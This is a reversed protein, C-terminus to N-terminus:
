LIICVMKGSSEESLRNTEKSPADRQKRVMASGELSYRESCCYTSNFATIIICGASWQVRLTLETCGFSLCVTTSRICTFDYVLFYSGRRQLHPSRYHCQPTQLIQHLNSHAGMCKRCAPPGPPCLSLEVTSRKYLFPFCHYVWHTQQATATFCTQQPKKREPIKLGTTRILERGSGEETGEAAKISGGGPEVDTGKRRARLLEPIFCSCCSM